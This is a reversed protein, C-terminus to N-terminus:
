KAMPNFVINRKREKRQIDAGFIRLLPHHIRGMKYELWRYVCLNSSSMRTTQPVCCSLMVCLVKIVVYYISLSPIALENNVGAHVRQVAIEFDCSGM